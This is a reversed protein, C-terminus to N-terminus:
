KKADCAKFYAYDNAYRHSCEDFDNGALHNHSHSAMTQVLEIDEGEGRSTSDEEKGLGAISRQLSQQMLRLQQLSKQPKAAADEVKLQLRQGAVVEVSQRQRRDAAMERVNGLRGKGLKGGTNAKAQGIDSRQVQDHVRSCLLPIVNEHAAQRAAVPLGAQALIRDIELAADAMKSDTARNPSGTPSISKHKQGCPFKSKSRPLVPTLLNYIGKAAKFKSKSDCGSKAGSEVWDAEWPHLDMCDPKACKTGYRCRQRNSMVMQENATVRQCMSTNMLMDARAAQEMARRRNEAQLDLREVERKANQRAHLTALEHIQTFDRAAEYHVDGAPEEAVVMNEIKVSLRCLDSAGHVQVMVRDMGDKDVVEAERGNFNSCNELGTLIVRTGVSPLMVARHQEEPPLLQKKIRELEHEVTRRHRISGETAFGEVAQSLELLERGEEFVQAERQLIPDLTRPRKPSYSKQEQKQQQLRTANAIQADCYSESIEGHSQSLEASRSRTQKWSREAAKHMQFRVHKQACM